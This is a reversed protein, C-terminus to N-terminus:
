KHFRTEEQLVLAVMAELTEQMKLAVLLEPAQLLKQVLELPLVLAVPNKEV